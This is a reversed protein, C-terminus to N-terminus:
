RVEIEWDKVEANRWLSGNAVRWSGSMLCAARGAAPKSGDRVRLLDAKPEGILTSPCANGHLSRGTRSSSTCPLRRQRDPLHRGQVPCEDGVAPPEQLTIRQLLTLHVRAARWSQPFVRMKELRLPDIEVNM